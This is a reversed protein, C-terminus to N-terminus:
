EARVRQELVRTPLGWLGVTVRITYDGPRAYTHALGASGEVPTDVVASGDGFDPRAIGSGPRNGPRRADIRLTLPTGARASQPQLSLATTTEGPNPFVAAVDTWGRKTSWQIAPDATLRFHILRDRADGGFLT